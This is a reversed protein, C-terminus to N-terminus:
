PPEFVLKQFARNHRLNGHLAYVLGVWLLVEYVVFRFRNLSTYIAVPLNNITLIKTEPHIGRQRQRETEAERGRQRETERDRGRQRETEAERGRQRETEAERGRQRQRETEAERDRGRQRETEAERDRGTQRGM